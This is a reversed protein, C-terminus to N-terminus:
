LCVRIKYISKVTDVINVCAALGGVIIKQSLEEAHDKPVTVMVVRFASM